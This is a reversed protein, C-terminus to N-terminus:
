EANVRHLHGGHSFRGHARFIPLYFLHLICYYTNYNCPM